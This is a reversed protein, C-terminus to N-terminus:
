ARALIERIQHRNLALWSLAVITLGSHLVNCKLAEVADDVLVRVPWTSEAEGLAGARDPIKSGDVEALLLHVLEDVVGPAPLYKFLSVLRMPEIGIEEKCERRGADVVQEGVEVGGAVIEVMEGKNLALHAPVRFQRLMVVEGRVPDVPLVGVVNGVRLM